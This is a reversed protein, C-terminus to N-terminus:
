VYDAADAKLYLLKVFLQVMLVLIIAKLTQFCEM